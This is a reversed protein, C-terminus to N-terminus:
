AGVRAEPQQKDIHIWYQWLLSFAFGGTMGFIGYWILGLWGTQGWTAMPVGGIVFSVIMITWWRIANLSKGLLFAPVGLVLVHVGAIVYVLAFLAGWTSLADSVTKPLAPHYGLVFLCCFITAPAAPVALFSVLLKGIAAFRNNQEQM